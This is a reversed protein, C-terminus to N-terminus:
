HITKVVQLSKESYEMLELKNGDPDSLWFQRTFDPALQIQTDPKIGKEELENWAKELNDVIIACHSYCCKSSLDGALPKNDFNYFLEICQGTM